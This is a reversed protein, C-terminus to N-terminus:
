SFLPLRLTQLSTVKSGCAIDESLTLNALECLYPQFLHCLVTECNLDYLLRLITLSIKEQYVDFYLGFIARANSATLALLQLKLNVCIIVKIHCLQQWVLSYSNKWLDSGLIPLPRYEFGSKPLQLIQFIHLV